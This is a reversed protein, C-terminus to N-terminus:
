PHAPPPAPRERRRPGRLLHGAPEGIRVRAGSGPRKATDVVKGRVGAGAALTITIGSKETRGDLAILASTGPAHDGHNAIFRFSGAPLAAFRFAGDAGTTVGDLRPDAHARFEGAVAFLVRAGAVPIGRDGVVRGRVAAGPALMIRVRTDGAVRVSAYAHAMGPAYAVVEYMGPVVPSLKAVGKATTATQRDVGRLEITAGDIPKADV